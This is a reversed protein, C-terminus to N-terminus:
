AAVLDSKAVEELTEEVLLVMATPDTNPRM